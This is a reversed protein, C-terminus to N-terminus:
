IWNWPFEKPHYPISFHSSRGLTVGGSYPLPDPSPRRGGLSKWLSLLQLLFIHFIFSYYFIHFVFSYYFSTSSSSTSFIYLIYYFIYIYFSYYFSTSSTSTSFIYLLHLFSTSSTSFVYFFRLLSTSSFYLKLELMINICIWFISLKNPSPYSLKSSWPFLWLRHILLCCYLPRIVIQVLITHLSIIFTKLTSM